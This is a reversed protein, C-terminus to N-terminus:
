QLIYIQIQSFMSFKSVDHVKNSLYEEFSEINLPGDYGKFTHFKEINLARIMFRGKPNQKEIGAVLDRIDAVSIKTKKDTRHLQIVKEEGDRHDKISRVTKTYVNKVM